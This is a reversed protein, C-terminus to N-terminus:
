IGESPKREINWDELDDNPTRNCGAETQPMLKIKAVVKEIQDPTMTNLLEKKINKLSQRYVYVTVNTQITHRFGGTWRDWFPEYNTSDTIYTYATEMRQTFVPSTYVDESCAIQLYAFKRPSETRALFAGLIIALIAIFLIKDKM